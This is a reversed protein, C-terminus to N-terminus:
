DASIVLDAKLGRTAALKKLRTVTVHGLMKEYKKPVTLTLNEEDLNLPCHRLIGHLTGSLTVGLRLAMGIERARALVDPPLMNAIDETEGKDITGTHRFLVSMAIQSRAQHRVGFLPGRMIETFAQDGRYDSPTRWAVDCLQCAAFRRRKEFPEEDPFFPTMWNYLEKGLRTGNRGAPRGFQRAMAECSAVLPDREQQLEDLQSYLAGERVGHASFVLREIGAREILRDLVLAAYPLTDYRRTPIENIAAMEDPGMRTLRKAVDHAEAGSIEYQHLIKLPYNTEAMHVRGLVRWAGGVVYLSDRKEDPFWPVADFAAEVADFVEKSTPAGITMLRLAGIPFSVKKGSITGKLRCIELSGGGMDGVIGKADRVSYGVGMAALHAEEKGALVKVKIGLIDEVQKVFQPGNQADRAAATAIAIRRKVKFGDAIVSYRALTSLAHEVAGEDMLDAGKGTHLGRGLGCLAKENFIPVPTRRIGSYIVLRVSNSGIDFVAIPESRADETIPAQGELTKM